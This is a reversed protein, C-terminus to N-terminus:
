SLEPLIHAYYAAFSAGPIAAVLALITFLIRKKLHTGKAARYVVFFAVFALITSLVGLLNPNM